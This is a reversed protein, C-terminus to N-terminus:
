EAAEASEIRSALCFRGIEAETLDPIPAFHKGSLDPLGNAVIEAIEECWRFWESRVRHHRLHFHLRTELFRRAPFTALLIPEIPLCADMDKIRRKPNKSHGIKVFDGCRIIYVFGSM